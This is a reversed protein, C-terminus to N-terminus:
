GDPKLALLHTSLKLLLHPFIPAIAIDPLNYVTFEGTINNFMGFTGDVNHQKFYKSISDDETINNVSCASFLCIIAIASVLKRM